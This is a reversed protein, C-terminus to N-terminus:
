PLAEINVFFRFNGTQAVGLLFQVDVSQGNVLPTGLTIVGVSMTSNFGGGNMQTPPEELTTGRVTLMGLSTTVAVDSSTLAHLEATGTGPPVPFTTVEVIRFRLRTVNAGTNNTFRRRVSMTGFNSNSGISTLDRVRNPSASSSVLPEILSTGFSSSRNIPSTSNEPGPAGLNQGLGTITGNTDVSIFDATNNDTDQPLGGSARTMKRVFSYQLNLVM